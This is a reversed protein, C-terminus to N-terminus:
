PKIYGKRIAFDLAQRLAKVPIEGGRAVKGNKDLWAYKVSKEANNWQAVGLRIECAPDNKATEREEIKRM